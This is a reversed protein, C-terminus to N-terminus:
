PVAGSEGRGEAADRTQAERRLQQVAARLQEALEASVRTRRLPVRLRPATAASGGHLAASLAPPVAARCCALHNGGADPCCAGQLGLRKLFIPGWPRALWPSHAPRGHM